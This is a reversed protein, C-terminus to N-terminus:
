LADKDEPYTKWLALKFRMGEMGWSRIKSFDRQM